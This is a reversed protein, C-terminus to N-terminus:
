RLSDVRRRGFVLNVPRVSPRDFVVCTYNGAFEPVQQWWSMHNAGAGHAFVLPPGHGEIEYYINSHHLEAFPM